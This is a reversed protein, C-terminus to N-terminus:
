PQKSTGADAPAAPDAMKALLRERRASAPEDHADAQAADPLDAAQRYAAQM